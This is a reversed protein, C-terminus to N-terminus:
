PGYSELHTPVSIPPATPVVNREHNHLGAKHPSPCLKYSGVMGSNGRDQDASIKVDERDHLAQRKTPM